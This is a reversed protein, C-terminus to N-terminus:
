IIGNIQCFLELEEEEPLRTLPVSRLLVVRRTDTASWTFGVGKIAEFWFALGGSVREAIEVVQWPVDFKKDRPSYRLGSANLSFKEVFAEWSPYLFLAESGYAIGLLYDERSKPSFYIEKFETWM